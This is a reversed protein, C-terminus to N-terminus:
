IDEEMAQFKKMFKRDIHDKIKFAIRGGFMIPKKYFIGTGDGLNYILLYDGGPDFTMLEKEELCAMLNHYLVPNQRVAYVGVKDLPQNQFHICDGGGFINPYRTNQLFKNVLLGGDPGTSLGSANFIESPKVGMALFIVDFEKTEGSNMVVANGDIKKVHHNFRVEIGRKKLSQFAKIGIKEPTRSILRKGCFLKIKPPYNCYKEGLRHVNGSVEVASPGGGIIGVSIQQKESLSIIRSQADKLREIPKVLFLNDNGACLNDMPVHSGTNFSVVDYSISSGSELVIKQEDPNVRVAKSKIFIGGKKEVVHKTAFRIDGPAYTKGLMGPGMGSYYHYDSPQIVTVKYGKETFIHLNSLTVMHAHGGGVLVLQKKM